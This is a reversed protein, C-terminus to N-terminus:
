PAIRGYANCDAAPHSPQERSSQPVGHAIRSVDIALSERWLAIEKPMDAEREM